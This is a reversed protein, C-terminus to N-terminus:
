RWTREDGHAVRTRTMAGELDALEERAAELSSESSDLRWNTEKDHDFWILAVANPDARVSRFMSRIWYGKDGGADTSAVAAYVIDKEPAIELLATRTPHQLADFGRWGGWSLATGGNFVTMGVADVFEDGPYVDAIAVTSTEIAAPAWVFRVNEAGEARFISRVHRWADVFAAAGDASRPAWSSSASNMEPAFVVLLPGAHARADAAWRRVYEDHAGLAIARADDDPQSGGAAHNWPEWYVAPTWGNDAATRAAHAPFPQTWDAFWAVIDLAAGLQEQTASAQAIVDNGHPSVGFEIPHLDIAPGTPRVSGGAHEDPIIAAPKVLEQGESGRGDIVAIAAVVAVLVVAAAGVRRFLAARRM